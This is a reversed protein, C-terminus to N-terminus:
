AAAAARKKKLREQLAKKQTDQKSGLSESLLTQAKEHSERLREVQEKSQDQYISKTSLSNLANQNQSVTVNSPASIQQARYAEQDDSNMWISNGDKLNYWFLYESEKDVLGIWHDRQDSTLSLILDTFPQIAETWTVMRDGDKDM